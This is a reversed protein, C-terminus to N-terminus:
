RHKKRQVLPAHTELARAASGAKRTAAIVFGVAFVCLLTTRVICSKGTDLQKCKLIHQTVKKRLDCYVNDLPLYFLLFCGLFKAAGLGFTKFYQFTCSLM